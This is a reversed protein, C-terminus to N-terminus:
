PPPRRGSGPSTELGLQELDRTSLNTGCHAGALAMMLLKGVNVPEAVVGRRCNGAKKGGASYGSFVPDCRHPLWRDTEIGAPASALLSQIGVDAIRPSIQEGHVGPGRLLVRR